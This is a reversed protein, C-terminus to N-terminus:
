LLVVSETQTDIVKKLADATLINDSKLLVIETRENKQFFEDLWAQHSPTIVKWLLTIHYVQNTNYESEAPIWLM